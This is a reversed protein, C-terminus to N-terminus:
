FECRTTTTETPSLSPPPLAPVLRTALGVYPGGDVCVEDIEFYGGEITMRSM